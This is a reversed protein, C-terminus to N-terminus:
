AHWTHGCRKCKRQREVSEFVHHAAHAAHSQNFIGTAFGAIGALVGAGIAEAGGLFTTEVQTSGCHPCRNKNNSM